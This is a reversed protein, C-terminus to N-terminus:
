SQLAELILETRNLNQYSTFIAKGSLTKSEAANKGSLLQNCAEELSGSNMPDFYWAADGCVERFVAIDSCVVPCGLSMAELNPIGFGEYLSPNILAQAHQYLWKLEPVSTYGLRIIRESELKQRGAFSSHGGGAIVLSYDNGNGTIWQEALVFNKRPDDSGVMLFYKGNFNKMKAPRVADAHLLDTGVKNGIVRVASRSNGRLAAIERAVTKSVTIIGRNTRCLRPVMLRYWNRFSFSFWEPHNLFALDHIVTVQNKLFLPGTNCLNLLMSQPFKNMVLPLDLQEWAHGQFRGVPIIEAQFSLEGIKALAPVLIKLKMGSAAMEECLGHAFAQVGTIRQTLFRGNLYFSTVPITLKM